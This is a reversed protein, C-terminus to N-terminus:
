VLAKATNRGLAQDSLEQFVCLGFEPLIALLHDFIDSQIGEYIQWRTETTFAYVELPLGQPTPQLQRVILSMTQHLNPHRRLYRETYARFTGINTLKRVNAPSSADKTKNHVEIDALKQDLYERLIEIRRLRAIEEETLFRISSQDIYLSRKIRRGGSEEMGRWNKFAQEMFKYTPITTITKDWNQVRVVHLAIDTIEGDAHFQDIQIWDGIRMMDHTAIQISAVFSMITDKFVLMLIASAAGLGTLLAWPSSGMVSSIVTVLAVLFLTLKAVQLYGKIPVRRAKKEDTKRYIDDVSDLVAFVTRVVVIIMYAAVFRVAEPFLFYLVLAPAIWALRDFVGRDVIVDDWTTKTKRTLQRIGSVVIRNALFFTLACAISVLITISGYFLLPDTGVYRQILDILQERSV